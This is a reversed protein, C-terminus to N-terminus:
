SKVKEWVMQMWQDQSMLHGNGVLQGLRLISTHGMKSQNRAEKKAHKLVVEGGGDRMTVREM